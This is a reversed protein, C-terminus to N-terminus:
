GDSDNNDTDKEDLDLTLKVIMRKKESAQRYANILKIEFDNLNSEKVFDALDSRRRYETRGMLYDIDVDFYESLIKQGSPGPSRTGKEYQMLSSYSIGTERSLQSKTVKKMRCLGSIDIKGSSEM